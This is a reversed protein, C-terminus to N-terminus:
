PLLLAGYLSVFLITGGLAANYLFQIVQELTAVPPMSGVLAPGEISMRRQFATLTPVPYDVFVGTDTEMGNVTSLQVRCYTPITDRRESM